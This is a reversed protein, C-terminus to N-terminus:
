SAVTTSAPTELAAARRDMSHRVGLAMLGAGIMAFLLALCLVLIDQTRGSRPLDIPATVSAPPTPVEPAVVVVRSPRSRSQLETCLQAQERLQASALQNMWAALEWPHVPDAAFVADLAEAMDLATAFRDEPYQALARMVIADLEAPVEPAIESPCTQCGDMVKAVTHGESEGHFLPESTLSEWLVVGAARIDTRRDVEDSLLQEPAMYALKGKLEGARTTQLRRAAKAIGFDLVRPVGDAGLLINQPSVDRHVVGLSQGCYDVAEHAAHLGRLAGAVIAAAIRPPIAAPSAARILQSLSIGAVYEMVVCVNGDVIEAGYTTVVNRHRMSTAIRAEDFLMATFQQETTLDDHLRKLAFVRSGGDALVGLHVQAMGGSAIPRSILYRGFVVSEQVPRSVLQPRRRVSSENESLLTAVDTYAPLPLASM